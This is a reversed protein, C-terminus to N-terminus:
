SLEPDESVGILAQLGSYLREATLVDANAYLDHALEKLLM